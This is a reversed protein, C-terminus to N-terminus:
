ETMDHSKMVGHVIAQCAGREMPNELGSYQFRYGNGEGPSRGLGAILGPNGANCAYEKGDLGGLFSGESQGM